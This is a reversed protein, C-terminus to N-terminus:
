CTSPSGPPPTTSAWTHRVRRSFLQQYLSQLVDGDCQGPEYREIRRAIARVSRALEATWASAYWAFVDPGGDAAAPSLAQRSEWHGLADGLEM